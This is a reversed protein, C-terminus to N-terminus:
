VKVFEKFKNIIKTQINELIHQCAILTVNDLRVEKFYESMYDLLHINDM